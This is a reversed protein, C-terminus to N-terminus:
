FSRHHRPRYDIFYSFKLSTFYYSNYGQSAKRTFGNLYNTFTKRWGIDLGIKFMGDIAYNIGAGIPFVMEFNSFEEFEFNDPEPVYLEPDHYFAGLGLYGYIELPINGLIDPVYGECRVALEFINNSFAFDRHYRSSEKPSLSDAGHIHGYNFSSNISMLQNVRYRAFVGANISTTEFQTDLIFGRSVESSGGIETLSHATGINIGVEWGTPAMAQARRSASVPRRGRPPPKSRSVPPQYKARGYVPIASNSEANTAFMFSLNGTKFVTGVLLVVLIM